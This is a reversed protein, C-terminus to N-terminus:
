FIWRPTLEGGRWDWAALVSRGYYGRCMVVSPHTGDLYAVCALMRDVRNGNNDNGGNGGIGGWKSVDGRPPMYDVTAMAAGTLGNFITFFEPGDLIKDDRNVWDADPDGIVTGRGDVTGDATKCAVEAKGDGDLDYVMFQTYHAGERINRGLNIRWLLVGELTYAELIPPDSRGRSANDRGRGAQHLVMDYNGDGDLDGVSADNPSYGEPTQLPITMSNQPWVHVPKSSPGEFGNIVPRVTYSAEASGQEDMVNTAGTLPERNIRTDGRYVNFATTLPETGLCRWGVYVSGSELAVAVTGRNLSEM